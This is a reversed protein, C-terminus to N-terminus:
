EEEASSRSVPLSKTLRYKQEMTGDVKNLGKERMCGWIMVSGGEHKAALVKFEEHM